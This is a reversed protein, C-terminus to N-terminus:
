KKKARRLFENYSLIGFESIIGTINEKKILEFAPNEIHVNDKKWIEKSPRQEMKVTEKSYKLSDSVIYLSIKNDKAIQAILGSGLKNVVGKKTIADAGLLIINVPQTKEEKDQDKTLAIQIASDVFMIVKIGAKRLERATKRGQFLPRTETNYVEFHKGKKHLYILADVVSSSHCHTFVVSNNKILRFLNKNIIEQNKELNNIFEQYSIKDALKLSNFLMPETPRLSSLKKKSKQSPILKYAYFAAKAVNEAGQIKVSKIDKCIQNFKNNM